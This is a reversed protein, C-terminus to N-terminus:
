FRSQLKFGASLSTQTYLPVNSIARNAQVTVVPSFGMWNFNRLEATASAGFVHDQRGTTTYPSTPFMKYGYSAGLGLVVGGIPKGFQYALDLKPLSYEQAGNISFNRAFSPEVKLSDGWNFRHTLSAKVMANTENSLGGSYHIFRQVAGGFSFSTNSGSVPFTFASSLGFQDTFLAGGYWARGVRASLDLQGTGIKHLHQATAYVAYYDYDHGSVGPVSAATKPGLWNMRGMASLGVRSESVQTRSFRYTVAAGAEATIGSLARATPSLVFPLGNILFIRESSGNNINSNPAVGAFLQFQWPNEHRAIKYAKAIHTVDEVGVSHTVARRLWFQALTFKEERAALEAIILASAYQAPDIDSARYAAMASDRAARPRGLASLARAKLLLADIHAPNQALVVNSLQLARAPDGANMADNADHITDAKATSLMLCLGLVPLGTAKLAVQAKRFFM